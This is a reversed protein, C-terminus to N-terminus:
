SHIGRLTMQTKLDTIAQSAKAIDDTAESEMRSFHPDALVGVSHKLLLKLRQKAKLKRRTLNVLECALDETSKAQLHPQTPKLLSTKWVKSRAMLRFAVPMPRACSRVLVLKPM